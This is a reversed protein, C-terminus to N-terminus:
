NVAPPRYTPIMLGVAYMTGNLFPRLRAYTGEPAGMIRIKIFKGNHGCLFSYAHVVKGGPMLISHNIQLWDKSLPELDDMRTATKYQGKLLMRQVNEDLKRFEALVRPDATGNPINQQGLDYVTIDATAGTNEIYAVTYGAERSAHELRQQFRYNAVMKMFRFGTAPDEFAIEDYPSVEAAQAPAFAALVLAFLLNRM